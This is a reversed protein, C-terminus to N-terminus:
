IQYATNTSEQMSLCNGFKYIRLYNTFRLKLIFTFTEDILQVKNIAIILTFIIVTAVKYSALM